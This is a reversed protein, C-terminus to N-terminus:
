GFIWRSTWGAPQGGAEGIMEPTLDIGTVQHGKEALLFALFGTGNRCGPDKPTQRGSSVAGARKGVPPRKGGDIGQAAFRFLKGDAPGLLRRDEAQNNGHPEREEQPIGPATLPANRIGAPFHACFVATHVFAM